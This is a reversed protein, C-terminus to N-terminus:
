FIPVTMYRMVEAYIAIAVISFLTECSIRVASDGSGKYYTELVIINAAPPLLCILLLLPVYHELFHLGVWKVLVSFVLIGIVCFGIRLLYVKMNDIIHGKGITTNALWIGLVLMGFLSMMFKSLQYISQGYQIILANFPILIFGLILAIVPPSSIVNRFSIPTGSLYNAGISNGFISSGIYVALMFRAAEDGFLSAVIPLGLWGINLYCLCLSSTANGTLKYSIFFLVSIVLVTFVIILAMQEFYIAINWVIVFPIVCKTLIFPAFKTINLTSKGVIYGFFLYLLPYLM